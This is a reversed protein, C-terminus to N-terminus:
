CLTGPGIEVQRGLPMKISGATQGCCVHASFQPQAGKPHSTPDGDLVIHGPGIGIKMGLPMKIWGAMQGCYMPLFSPSSDDYKKKPPPPQTGMWCLTAQASTDQDIRGNLWLLCPGRIIRVCLFGVGTFKSPRPQQAGKRPPAPEGDLVIHGEGLGILIGNEGPDDV